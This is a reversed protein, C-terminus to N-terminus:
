FHRRRGKIETCVLVKKPFFFSKQAMGEGKADFFHVGVGVVAHILLRRSIPAKTKLGHKTTENKKKKKNKKKQSTREGCKASGRQVLLADLPGWDADSRLGWFFLLLLQLASGGAGPGVAAQPEWGMVARPLAPADRGSKWSIALPPSKKFSRSLAAVHSRGLAWSDRSSASFHVIAALRSRPPVEEISGQM